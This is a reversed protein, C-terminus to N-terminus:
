PGSSCPKSDATPPSSAYRDPEPQGVATGPGEARPDNLGRAPSPRSEPSRRLLARNVAEMLASPTFPKEMVDTAGLKVAQVASPIDADGTIIVVSLGADLQRVEELVELGGIEPMRLDLVLCADQGPAFEELFARPHDWTRVGMGHRELISQLLRLMQPDDDVVHITVLKDGGSDKAQGRNFLTPHSRSDAEPM